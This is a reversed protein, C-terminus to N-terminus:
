KPKTRWGHPLCTAASCLLVHVRVWINATAISRLFEVYGSCQSPVWPNVAFMYWYCRAVVASTFGIGPSSMATNYAFDLFCDSQQAQCLVAWPTSSPLTLKPVHCDLASTSLSLQAQLSYASRESTHWVEGWRPVQSHLCCSIAQSPCSRIWNTFQYDEITETRRTHYIWKLMM